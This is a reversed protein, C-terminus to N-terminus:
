SEYAKFRNECYKAYGTSRLPCVLPELLEAPTLTDMNIKVATAWAKIKQLLKINDIDGLLRREGPKGNDKRVTEDCHKEVEYVARVEDPPWDSNPKAYPLAWEACKLM